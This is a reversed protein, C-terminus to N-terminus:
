PQEAQLRMHEIYLRQLADAALKGIEGNAETLAKLEEAAARVFGGRDIQNLDEITPRPLLQRDDIRMFCFAASVGDAVESQFYRRSELSLVGTVTLSILMGGPDDTINRLKQVLFDIDSTENIQEDLKSWTYKGTPISTVVPKAKPGEIAVLLAHGGDLVDFADIEPTGSYWCRDNVKRQGHWDGLALYSLHAKKPRDPDVFNAVEEGESGFGTITGHAIGIRIVDDPLNVDDMYETLDRLTHRHQLPAPLLM